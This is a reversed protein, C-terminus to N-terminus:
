VTRASPKKANRVPHQVVKVFLNMAPHVNMLVAWASQPIVCKVIAVANRVTTGNATNVTIAIMVQYQTDATMAHSVMGTMSVSM